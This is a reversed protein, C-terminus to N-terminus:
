TIEGTKFKSLFSPEKTELAISAVRQIYCTPPKIPAEIKFSSSMIRDEYANPQQIVTFANM